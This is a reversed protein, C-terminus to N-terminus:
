WLALFGTDRGATCTLLIVFCQFIGVKLGISYIAFTIFDELLFLGITFVTNRTILLIPFDLPSHLNLFTSPIDDNSPHAHECSSGFLPFGRADTRQVMFSM